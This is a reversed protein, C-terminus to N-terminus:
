NTVHYQRSPTVLLQKVLRMQTFYELHVQKNLTTTKLRISIFIAIKIDVRAHNDQFFNLENGGDGMQFIKLILFLSKCNRFGQCPQRLFRSSSSSFCLCSLLRPFSFIKFPLTAAACCSEIPYLPLKLIWSAYIYNFRNNILILTSNSNRNQGLFLASNDHKIEVKCHNSKFLMIDKLLM